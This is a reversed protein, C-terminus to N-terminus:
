CSSFAYVRFNCPDGGTCDLIEFGGSWQANLTLGIWRIMIFLRYLSSILGLIEVAVYQKGNKSDDVLSRCRRLILFSSLGFAVLTACLLLMMFM